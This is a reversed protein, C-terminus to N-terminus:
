LRFVINRSSSAIVIVTKALIEINCFREPMVSVTKRYFPRPNLRFFSFKIFFFNFVISIYDSRKALAALFAELDAAATALAMRAGEFIPEGGQGLLAPRGFLSRSGGWFRKGQM